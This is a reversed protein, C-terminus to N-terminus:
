LEDRLMITMGSEEGFPVMWFENGHRDCGLSLLGECGPQSVVVEPSLPPSGVELDHRHRLRVIAQVDELNLAAQAALTIFVQGRSRIRVKQQQQM